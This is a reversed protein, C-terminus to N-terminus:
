IHLAPCHLAANGYEGTDLSRALSWKTGTARNVVGVHCHVNQPSQLGKSPL